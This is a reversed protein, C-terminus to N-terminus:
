LVAVNSSSYRLRRKSFPIIGSSFYKGQIKNLEKLAPFSKTYMEGQSRWPNNVHPEKLAMWVLNTTHLPWHIHINNLHTYFNAEFPDGAGGCRPSVKKVRNRM